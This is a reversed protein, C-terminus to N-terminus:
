TPQTDKLNELASQISYIKELEAKLGEVSYSAYHHNDILYALQTLMSSAEEIIEKKSM